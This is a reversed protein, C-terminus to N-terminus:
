LFWIEFILWVDGGAPSPKADILAYTGGPGKLEAYENPDASTPTKHVFTWGEPLSGDLDAILQSATAAVNSKPRRYMPCAFLYLEIKTAHCNLGGGPFQKVPWDLYGESVIKPDGSVLNFFGGNAATLYTRISNAEPSMPKIGLAKEVDEDTITDSNQPAVDPAPPTNAQASATGSPTPALGSGAPAHGPAPNAQQQNQSDAYLQVLNNAIKAWASANFPPWAGNHSVIRVDELSGNRFMFDLRIWLVTGDLKSIGDLRATVDFGNRTPEFRDIAVSKYFASPWALDYVSQAVSEIFSRANSRDESNQASASLALSAFLTLCALLTRAPRKLLPPM